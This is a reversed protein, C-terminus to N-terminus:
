RAKSRALRLLMAIAFLLIFYVSANVAMAILDFRWVSITSSYDPKSVSWAFRCGPDTLYFILPRLPSEWAAQLLFAVALVCVALVAAFRRSM